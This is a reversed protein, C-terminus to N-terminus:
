NDRAVQIGRERLLTGSARALESQAKRHDTLAAIEALQAVALDNQRTLVFFNTSLGAAFRDQEARLQTEAAALGARAAKIRSAATELATAANLVETAIRDQTDAMVTSSRRRQAEAEAIQGRAERRGIPIEFTVGVMADPFKQDFLNSWSNGWGGSLSHPLSVPMGAFPYVPSELDGAMGRVTYGAVLDLRPKLQDRVLAMQVDDQALEATLEAIEPRNARADALARQIDVTTSAAEPRDIPALAVGWMPDDLDGLILLKLAREARAVAEQSALLDGRRKEVEATPQALDAPALVKAEIRVATDDRQREALQLSSRRVDLDSKAAVLSWYAAEVEAVTDLVQRALAAGSRERDLATVRLSTRAPDIARNRLLPQQLNLGLSSTYAPVFPSFVADTGERAVSTSASATAGTKLLRSLTLTSAFNNQSPAPSGDPAGSFLSNVPDRHHRGTVDLKLQMDYAGSASTSRGEAAAVNEQEVRIARNKALARNTADAVTLPEQASAGATAALLCVGATMLRNLLM